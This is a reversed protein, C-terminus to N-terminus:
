KQRLIKVAIDTKIEPVDFVIMSDSAVIDRKEIIAGTVTDWLELKYSGNAFGTLTLRTPPVPNIQVNDRVNFWTHDKNQVWILAKENTKMGLVRLNPKDSSLYNTLRFSNIMIWDNGDNRIMIEHKGAPIDIDIDKDYITEWRKWQEIYESSVGLGQGTPLEVSRVENGDLFIKLMGNDGVRGIRIIFKGDTPYNVKFTIPVRLNIHAHGHLISQLKDIDEITGDEKIEFTTKIAKEWNGGKGIFQLDKYTVQASTDVYSLSAINLPQWAHSALDKEDALYSSIGKYVDYLNLPDIYSEHWWSAPVSASGTMLGAWNGNHLHIGKPDNQATGGGSMIGYEAFLHLKDPYDKRKQNNINAVEQAMDLPNNAYFHSQVFDMEPLKWLESWGATTWLSTSIPHMFPDIKRLEKAMDSVWKTVVPRNQEAGEWGEMENMFEWALLNTYASWRAVIYRLRNKYLKQANVDKFFDLPKRIPGGIKVNYPNNDWNERFDQHTDFCLMIYIGNELALEMAKDLKWAEDLRYDGVPMNWELGLASSYMWFRNYNEGASAMKKFYEAVNSYYTPMNHGILFLTEGNELVFYLPSGKEPPKSIRVFGKSDSPICEFKREDSKIRGKKDKANIIFSYTGIETPAFRVKWVLKGDYSLLELDDEIESKFGQYLFGPMTTKKGSPSTFVADIQVNNPDFIDDYTASLDVTLEFISYKPVKEMNQKIEKFALKENQIDQWLVYADIAPKFRLKINVNADPDKSLRINMLPEGEKGRREFICARDVIFELATTDNLNVSFGKASTRYNEGAIYPLGHTFEITQGSMDYMPFELLMFIGRNLRIDGNKQFNLSINISEDPLYNVKQTYSVYGSSANHDPMNGTWLNQEASVVSSPTAYQWNDYWLFLSGKVRPLGPADIVFSGDDNFKIKNNEAYSISTSLILIVFILKKLINHIIIFNNKNSATKM